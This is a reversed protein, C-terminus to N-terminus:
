AATRRSQLAINIAANVSDELTEFIPVQPVKTRLEYRVTDWEPFEPDAGIVVRLDPKHFQITSIMEGLELMTIQAYSKGPHKENEAKKGLFFFGCGGTDEAESLGMARDIYYNEWARQRPFTEYRPWDREAYETTQESLETPRAPCAFFVDENMTIAHEIARGHWPFSNRIPGLSFLVPKRTPIKVKRGADSVGFAIPLHIQTRYM